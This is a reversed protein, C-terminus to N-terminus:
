ETPEVTVAMVVPASRDPGKVLEIQKILNPRSPKVSFYRIQQGRLKFAQKSEPVDFHGIYDAFQVGNKLPIDETKGDDYDLRVIMSVSGDTGGHQAGWGSVGSLFHIAKAATNCPLAVSKPMAQVLPTNPSNLMVVNPVKSGQPDVLHFPIGEFTKPKWDAFILREADNDKNTFMGKTSVITAVKRLDLPLYKGKQTLFELLDAFAEPPVQKEFGEPMLSKPSTEMKRIDDRQIAHTKGEADLLEVSTKSESALLGNFVQGETTSVKYLRFNGEVSRSPDLIDVILEAKPKAAMGSLDPGIKGGENNHTHCKICNTKFIEKGKAADGKALAKPSYEDIVKQRDADPMGGGSALIKKARAAIEKNPHVVLAQKQDLSLDSLQVKGQELGAVFADTWDTKELAVSVAVSHSSPPLTKLGNVLVAGGQPSESQRLAELIGNNFEPSTRPSILAFLDRVVDPDTKRLSVLQEAAAVRDADSDKGGRLKELLAIAIEASRKQMEVSGWRSSLTLLYGKSGPAAQSMLQGLAKEFAEDVKVAGDKPWGKVMAALITEQIKADAGALEAVLASLTDSPKARSYHEAVRAIVDLIKKDPSKDFRKEIFAKLFSIDNAAAASTIADPLWADGSTKADNLADILVSALAPSPPMDALALFAALRVQADQDKLSDTALLGNLAADNRPLVHLANRRVGASPHKLAAIAAATADANKGDLVGLGQMTWLAHIACPTLGVADLTQDQTLKILEPVVDANGREVLLRQATTRWFMNENKLAALLTAPDNPDLKPQPNGKAGKYVIRYIRGHTKDRLPTDYANGRGNKFGHPVPNHQIIYNYWDIVWVNGDPGVEAMIPATWEDDSAVLNNPTNRAIFDAGNRELLFTTTVHGTPENVFQARNWFEKPYTRATYLAGGAAATFKGHWDVQRVRDTVPHIELNDAITGLVKPSWGRVSEYYRNPIPMYTNSNGNATSGFVIGEESFGLGWSNNNNSRIFELKTGDPKFRYFGAGFKLKEGGVEGTFSSYGVIGWIWNDPGWRLNSPGAHTDGVGWGTFLVKREDAVDDNKTSKLFLTEPAQQVVVGGNAFTFSTPISLKDAFVTFKDARGDGDTDECITIRDHGEGMPQKNNPYDITEAVWLRGKHDWAMCIPKVIQPDAVFLQAEFGEPLVLHKMSEAADLPKQMKGWGADNGTRNGTPSYFPVEAAEYEFPKVDTRKAQPKPLDVPPKETTATPAPPVDVRALRPTPKVHESVKDDGSSWRIGREILEMFGPNSWVREDHGYATYFVRGKGQTRAWTWPEERAGEQRTQLVIRDVENHKEHVYTEDWTQFLVFGKMAPHDPAVIKPDFVGTHHSKFKGGVLAIFKPSNVFCASSCHIPVFGKGGEVFDLLAKEQDPEIALSNSYMVLCDYKALNEANLDSNKETFAIDIGNKKMPEQLANFLKVPNHHSKADGLFLVKLMKGPEADAAFLPPATLIGLVLIYKAAHFASCIRSTKMAPIHSM